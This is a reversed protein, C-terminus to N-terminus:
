PWTRSLEALPAYWQRLQYLNVRADAFYVVVKISGPAPWPHAPLGEAVARRYGRARIANRILRRATKFEQTLAVSRNGEFTRTSGEVTGRRRQVGTRPLRGVCDAAAVTQPTRRKVNEPPFARLTATM